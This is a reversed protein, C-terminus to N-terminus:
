GGHPAAGTQCFTLSKRMLCLFAFIFIFFRKEAKKGGLDGAAGNGAAAGAAGAAKVRSGNGAARM